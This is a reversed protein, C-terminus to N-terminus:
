HAQEVDLATVQRVWRARRKEAPVVIRFPGESSGLRHGDRRDALLIIQNTFDPDFEALAFVVRYGDAAGVVVYLELSRGRLEKGLPVGARRLLEVVPVGEYVTPARKDNAVEVTQRRLTLLDSDRFVVTRGPVAAIRLTAGQTDGSTQQGSAASCLATLVAFVLIPALVLGIAYRSHRRRIRFSM